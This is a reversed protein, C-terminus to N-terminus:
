IGVVDFGAAEAALAQQRDHTAFVLDPQLRQRIYVATTVHLSDLARVVTPMPASALALIASNLPVFAIAPRMSAWAEWASTLQGGLLRRELRFRDLVRAIEVEALVSSWAEAPPWDGLAREEGLMIDVLPSSDLYLNM